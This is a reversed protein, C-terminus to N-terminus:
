QILYKNYISKIILKKYFLSFRIWWNNKEIHLQSGTRSCKIKLLSDIINKLKKSISGFSEISIPVFQYGERILQECRNSQYLQTKRREGYLGGCFIVNKNTNFLEINHKSYIDNIITDLFLKKLKGFYLIPTHIIIDPKKHTLDDNDVSQELTVNQLEIKFEEYLYHNVANHRSKHNYGIRCQLAHIGYIDM